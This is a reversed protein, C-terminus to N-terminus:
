SGPAGWGSGDGSGSGPTRWPDDDRPAAPASPAAAPTTPAPPAPAAPPPSAGPPPSAPPQNAVSPTSAAWSGEVVIEQLHPEPRPQQPQQPGQPGPSWARAARKAKGRRVGTVIMLVGGAVSGVLFVVGAGIFWPVLDEALDETDPGVALEDIEASRDADPSPEFTYEGDTPADFSLRPAYTEETTTVPPDSRVLVPRTEGNPDTIRLDSATFDTGEDVGSGVLYVDYTGIDLTLTTPEDVAVRDFDDFAGILEFAGWFALVGSAIIAVGVLAGGILYGGIGPKLKPAAAGPAAPLMSTM